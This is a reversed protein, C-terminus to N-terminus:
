MTKNFKAGNRPSKVYNFEVNLNPTQILFKFIVVSFRVHTHHGMLALLIKNINM